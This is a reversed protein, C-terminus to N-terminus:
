SRRRFSPTDKVYVTNVATNIPEVHKGSSAIRYYICRSSHCCRIRKVIKGWLTPHESPRSANLNEKFLCPHAPRGPPEIVGFGESTPVHTRIEACECSSPNTRPHVFNSKMTSSPFPRSFGERSFILVLVSSPLFTSFDQTVKRRHSRGGTHGEEQTVKRRHSRGGTHGEEQTVKRRHSGPQHTLLDSTWFLHSSLVCM